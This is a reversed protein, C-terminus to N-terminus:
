HQSHLYSDCIFKYNDLKFKHIGKKWCNRIYPDREDYCAFCVVEDHYRKAHGCLCILDPKIKIKLLKENLM